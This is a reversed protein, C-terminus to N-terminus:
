SLVFATLCFIAGQRASCVQSAQLDAQPRSTSLIHVPEVAPRSAASSAAARQRMYDATEIVQAVFITYLFAKMSAAAYCNRYEQTQERSANLVRWTCRHQTCLRRCSM